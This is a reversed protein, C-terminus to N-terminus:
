YNTTTRDDTDGELYYNPIKYLNYKMDCDQEQREIEELMRELESM